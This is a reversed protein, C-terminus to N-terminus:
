IEKITNPINKNTHYNLLNNKESEDNLLKQLIENLRGYREFAKQYNEEVVTGRSEDLNIKSLNFMTRIFDLAEQETLKSNSFNLRNGNNFAAEQQMKLDSVKIADHVSPVGLQFNDKEHLLGISYELMEAKTHKLKAEEFIVENVMDNESFNNSIDIMARILMKEDESKNPFYKEVDEDTMGKTNEYTVVNFLKDTSITNSKDDTVNLINDFDSNNKQNEVKKEVKYYNSHNSTDIRM